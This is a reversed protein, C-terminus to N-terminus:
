SIIVRKGRSYFFSPFRGSYLRTTITPISIYSSCLVNRYKHQTMLLSTTLFQFFFRQWLIFIPNWFYSYNINLMFKPQHIRLLSSKFILFRFLHFYIISYRKASTWISALIKLNKLVKERIKKEPMILLDLEPWTKRLM